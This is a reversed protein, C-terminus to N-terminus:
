EKFVMIAPLLLFRWLAVRGGAEPVTVVEGVVGVEVEEL